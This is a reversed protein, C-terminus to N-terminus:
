NKSKIESELEQIRTQSELLGKLYRGYKRENVFYFGFHCNFFYEAKILLLKIKKM